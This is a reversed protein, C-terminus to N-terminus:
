QKMVDGRRWRALSAVATRALSNRAPCFAVRVADLVPCSNSVSTGACCLLPFTCGIGFSSFALVTCKGPAREQWGVSDLLAPRSRGLELGGTGVLEVPTSWCPVRGVELPRSRHISTQPAKSRRTSMACLYPVDLACWYILHLGDSLSQFSLRVRATSHAYQLM